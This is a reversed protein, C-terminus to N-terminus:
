VGRVDISKDAVDLLSGVAVTVGMRVLSIACKLWLSWSTSKVNLTRTTVPCVFVLTVVKHAGLLNKAVEIRNPRPLRQTLKAM